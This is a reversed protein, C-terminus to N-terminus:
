CRLNSNPYSSKSPDISGQSLAKEEKKEGFSGEVEGKGKLSSSDSSSSSSENDLYGRDTYYTTSSSDEEIEGDSSSSRNKEEIEGDSSTSFVEGRARSSSGESYPLKNLTLLKNLEDDSSQNDEELAENLFSALGKGKYHTYYVPLDVKRKESLIATPPKFQGLGISTEGLNDKKNFSLDKNKRLVETRVPHDNTDWVKSVVRLVNVLTSIM